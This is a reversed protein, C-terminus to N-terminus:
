AARLVDEAEALIHPGIYPSLAETTVLEVERGTISELLDSLELFRDFTKQGDHFQVLLDVDSDDDGEGRVFSGFLALRRVGLRRIAAESDKLRGVIEDRTKASATM